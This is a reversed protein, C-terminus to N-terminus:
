SEVERPDVVQCLEGDVVEQLHSALYNHALNKVCKIETCICASGNVKHVLLQVHELDVESKVKIVHFLTPTPVGLPQSHHLAGGHHGAEVRPLEEVDAAEDVDPEPHVVVLHVSVHILYAEITSNCVCYDLM